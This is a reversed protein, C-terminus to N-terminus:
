NVRAAAERSREALSYLGMGLASTLVVSGFWLWRTSTM